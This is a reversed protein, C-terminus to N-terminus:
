PLIEASKRLQAEADIVGRNILEIALRLKEKLSKSAPTELMERLVQISMRFYRIVEGEDIELPEIISQFSKDKMWALLSVSLDYFFPKSFYNLRMKKEFRHIGRVVETCISELTKIEAPFKPNRMKPRPDYVAALALAGVQNLSLDELVGYGFLEALPLENGYIKKAFHGKETLQFDHIYGLKKLIQLRAKMQELQFASNAAKEQFNYFSLSHIQLLEEGYTEFLNLITAYSTNFRSRIVEPEGKCISQLEQFKVAKPDVRSYVFGEKDIGRRGSRGAMQHFDRVKLARFFRGYKKKVEDLAVTRAPMNIGLAFTETTFIIKILKLTFLRELIEKLMPHIGAHHYAVGKKVLQRLTETREEGYIDYRKCFDDYMELIQRREEGSLYDLQAAEVALTECRRRSFSFYICPLRDEQQLHRILEFPRNARYKIEVLRNGKFRRQKRQTYAVQKVEKLEDCVMGQCQFFFHLPVPRQNEKIVVIPHSHIERLWAAFQEVNPITASLGLFHIHKPMLILSEEWVTGRELNDLYHIEDFIIWHHGDLSTEIELIKNRLIETTMILLPSHPRINVDGTIIGVQDPFLAQFERYKQNSLAKIPATYIIGRKEMMCKKILHEAILTKGAGTPASVLVSQNKQVAEIAKVQFDDLQFHNSNKENDIM